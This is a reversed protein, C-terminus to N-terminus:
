ARHTARILAPNGTGPVVGVEAFGACELLRMYEGATRDRSGFLVMMAM